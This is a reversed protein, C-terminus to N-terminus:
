ECVYLYFHSLASLSCKMNIIIAAQNMQTRIQM